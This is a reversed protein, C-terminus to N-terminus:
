NESIIAFFMVLCSVRIWVGVLDLLVSFSLSFEM